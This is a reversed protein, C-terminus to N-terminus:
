YDGALCSFACEIHLRHNPHACYLCQHTWSRLIQLEETQNREWVNEIAVAELQGAYLLGSSTSRLFLFFSAALFFAFSAASLRLSKSLLFSALSMADSCQQCSICLSIARWCCRSSSFRRFESLSSFRRFFAASLASFCARLSSLYSVMLCWSTVVINHPANPM